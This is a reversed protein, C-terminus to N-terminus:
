ELRPPLSRGLEVAAQLKAVGEGGGECLGAVRLAEVKHEVVHTQEARALMEQALDIAREREGLALAAQAAVPRWRCYDFFPSPSRRPVSSPVPAVCPMPWSDGDSGSPLPMGSYAGTM